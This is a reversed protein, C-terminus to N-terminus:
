VIEYPIEFRERYFMMRTDVEERNLGFDELSYRHAHHRGERESDALWASMTNEAEVTFDQKAFHYVRRMVARWDRNMDEYLIDLQQSPHLAERVHLCRRVMLECLELWTDRIAGRLPPDTNHVAFNWMLSLTSGVTKLPDRHIFVLKADPFTKTVAELDLMYQPTKMVWRKNEDDGRSWSILKMLDAMTRYAATRDCEVFWKSYNPLNYLLLPSLGSFSHNLLLLEEEAWDADMPHAAFAGPNLRRGTRLFKEVEDHRAAKGSDPLGPRPAPNFGEWAKVHQFRTDAALMRHLRTTGSRVPGVIIIPATINRQRIEPHAEFCANAWLLNKLSATIEMKAHLRGCPNLQAESHLAELLKRLGPLFSEDGFRTLGTERRAATCLCEESLDIKALGLANMCRVAGNILKVPLPHHHTSPTNDM